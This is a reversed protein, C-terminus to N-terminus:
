GIGRLQRYEAVEIIPPRAVVELEHPLLRYSHDSRAVTQMVPSYPVRLEIRGDRELLMFLAELINFSMKSLAGLTQNAHVREEIDVQGLAELGVTRTLEVLLGTEVAYGTFFHVRELVERRGGYEGSLPQVFGSLEPYFLNIAPRAMLETVRGGGEGAAQDEPNAGTAVPRRYYAKIYCLSPDMLLPGALGYVFRPDINQIDSDVWFVLDGTLGALSKWLAEGKGRARGMSPLLEDDFLIEAGAERAREVTDDESRSDIIALQDILPQEDMLTRRLCEVIPGVTAGVNLTPLGVSITLGAARKASVLREIDAFDQHRYNRQAFWNEIRM